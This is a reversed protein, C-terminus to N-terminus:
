VRKTRSALCCAGSMFFSMMPWWSDTSITRNFFIDMQFKSVMHKKNDARSTSSSTGVEEACAIWSKWPNGSCFLYLLKALSEGPSHSIRAQPTHSEPGPTHSEPRPLTLNQGLLTLNQGLSYPHSVSCSVLPTAILHILLPTTITAILSLTHSHSSHTPTHMDCHSILCILLPKTM